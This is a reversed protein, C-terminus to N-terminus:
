LVGECCVQMHGLQGVVNLTADACFKGVAMIHELLANPVTPFTRPSWRWQQMLSKRFALTKWKSLCRASHHCHHYSCSSMQYAINHQSRDSRLRRAKYWARNVSNLDRSNLARQTKRLGHVAPPQQQIQVQTTRERHIDYILRPDTQLRPSTLPRLALQAIGGFFLRQSFVSQRRRFHNRHSGPM